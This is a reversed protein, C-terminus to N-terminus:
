RELGFPYEVMGYLDYPLGRAMRHVGKMEATTVFAKCCEMAYPLLNEGGKEAARRYEGLAKQVAQQSRSKKLEKFDAIYREVLAEDVQHHYAPVPADEDESVTFENVGVVIREKNELEKQRSNWAEELQRDFWGTRIAETLGGLKEIQDLMSQIESEIKETLSEVYYSGGLPDAVNTVGTEYALIQETRLAITAAEETPSAIAEDYGCIQLSQCGGLVAALGAYAGRAINILAQPREMLIGGTNVHMKMRLARPDKVGFTEKLTRAYVHRAARFKAAEEFIDIMVSFTFSIKSAILDIDAGAKLAARLVLFVEAFIFAVEQAATVGTERINYGNFNMPIWRPVHKAVWDVQAVFEGLLAPILDANLWERGGYMCVPNIPHIANTGRLRDFAVGNKEALVLYSPFAVPTLATLMASVQDQPIGDMVTFIDSINSIPVGSRGVGGEAMPHDPDLGIQTPQDCIMNIATEGNKLLYKFRENTLAPTPCGTILRRSWLRGRYMNAYVGRTFPYEGPAGLDKTYDIGEVDEPSYAEKVAIGSWTKARKEKDFYGIPIKAEKEMTKEKPRGALVLGLM